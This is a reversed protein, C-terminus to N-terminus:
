QNLLNIKNIVEPYGDANYTFMVKDVRITEVKKSIAQSIYKKLWIPYQLIDDKTNAVHSAFFHQIRRIPKTEGQRYYMLSDVNGAKVYQAYKDFSTYIMMRYPEAFTQDLRLKEKNNITVELINYSSRVTDIDSYMGWVFFPTTEVGTKHTFISVLIFFCFFAFWLKSKAYLKYLYNNKLM